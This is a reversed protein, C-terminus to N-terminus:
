RLDKGTQCHTCFVVVPRRDLLPEPFQHPGSCKTRRRDIRAHVRKRTPTSM